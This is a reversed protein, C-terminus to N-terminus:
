RSQLESTHEESRENLYEEVIKKFWVTYNQPEKKIEEKLDEIRIYRYDEVEEPNPVPEGNFRGVFVHDLENEILGNEFSTKYIFKGTSNIPPTLAMKEKM